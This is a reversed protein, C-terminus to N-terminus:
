GRVRAAILEGMEKTGVEKKGEGMIDYTCYGEQLVELVATEVVQAERALGLSYRLMM